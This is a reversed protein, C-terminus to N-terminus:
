DKGKLEVFTENGVSDVTFEFTALRTTGNKLTLKVTKGLNNEAPGSDVFKVGLEKFLIQLESYGTTINNEM